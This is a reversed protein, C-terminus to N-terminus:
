SVLLYPIFNYRPDINPSFTVIYKECPSFDIFQVGPHALRAIKQFGPGGWLAIGKSHFTAFYSGQPSWKVYSETWRERVDVNTAEPLANRFVGFQFILNSFSRTLNRTQLLLYNLQTNSKLFQESSFQVEYQESIKTTWVTDDNVNSFTKFLIDIKNNNIFPIDFSFTKDKVGM